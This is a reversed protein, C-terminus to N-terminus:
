ATIERKGRLLAATRASTLPGDRPSWRHPLTVLEANVGDLGRPDPRRRARRDASLRGLLAPRHTASRSVLQGTSGHVGYSVVCRTGAVRSTRCRRSPFTRKLEPQLPSPSLGEGRADATQVILRLTPPTSRQLLRRCDCGWATAAGAGRRAPTSISRSRSEPARMRRAYVCPSRDIRARRCRVRTGQINLIRARSRDRLWAVARAARGGHRSADWNPDAGFISSKVLSSQVISRALDRAPRRTPRAPSPSRTFRTAGEGDAAIAERALHSTPSPRPSRRTTPARTASRPNGRATRSRTSRTTPSTDGDIVLCHFSPEIAARLARDLM